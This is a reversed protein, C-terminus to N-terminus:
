NVTASGLAAPPGDITDSFDPQNSLALRLRYRMVRKIVEAALTPSGNQADERYCLVRGEFCKLKSLELDLQDFPIESGNALLTGSRLVSLQLVM